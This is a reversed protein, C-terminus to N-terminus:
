KTITQRLSSMWRCKIKKSKRLHIHDRLKQDRVLVKLHHLHILIMKMDRGLHLALNLHLHFTWEINSRRTWSNIPSACQIKYIIEKTTCTITPLIDMDEGILNWKNSILRLRNRKFKESYRLSSWSKGETLHSKMAFREILKMIFTISSKRM